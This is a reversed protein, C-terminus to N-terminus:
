KYVLDSDSKKLTNMTRISQLLSEQEEMFPVAKGLDLTSLLARGIIHRGKEGEEETRVGWISHMVVPEGDDNNGIYLVVHGKKEILTNFPKAHKKIYKKRENASLEVLATVEGYAAQERSIRPLFVGFLTYVDLLVGSCDREGNLGGWGYPRDLLDDLLFVFNAQTPLLPVKAVPFNVDILVLEAMGTKNNRVPIALQPKKGKKEVYALVAGTGSEAYFLGNQSLTVNDKMIGAFTNQVYEKTFKDSVFAVSDARVWGSGFRTTVNYWLGDKSIHFVKLPLGQWLFTSQAYDFPFGEGAKKPDRFFPKETPVARLSTSKTLIANQSLSPYTEGNINDVFGVWDKVPLPRLNLGHIDADAMFLWYLGAQSPVPYEKKWVVFFNQKFFVETVQPFVLRDEEVVVVDAIKTDLPYEEISEFTCTKLMLFIIIIFGCLIVYLGSQLKM